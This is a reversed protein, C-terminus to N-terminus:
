WKSENISDNIQEIILQSRFIGSAKELGINGNQAVISVHRHLMASETYFTIFIHNLRYNKCLM